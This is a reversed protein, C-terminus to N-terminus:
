GLAAFGGFPTATGPSWDWIFADSLNSIVNSGWPDALHQQWQEIPTTDLAFHQAYLGLMGMMALRGNKIEKTKLEFLDKGVSYGLPDFIGGPYGVPNDPLSNDGGGLANNILEPEKNVSGPKVFDQWRRSEAWGMLAIQAAWLASAPAFYQGWAGADYWAVPSGAPAFIGLRALLEPITCGALGLMAFRAHVLEAQAYFALKKPEQGLRLPDFGFDGPLKGDLYAPASAGPAWSAERAVARTAARQGRRCRQRGPTM